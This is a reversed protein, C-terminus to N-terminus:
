QWGEAALSKGQGTTLQAPAQCRQGCLGNMVCSDRFDDLHIRGRPWVGFGYRRSMRTLFHVEAAWEPPHPFSPLAATM